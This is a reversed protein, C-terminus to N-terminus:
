GNDPQVRCANGVTFIQSVRFLYGCCSERARAYKERACTVTTHATCCTMFKEKIGKRLMRLNLPSGVEHSWQCEEV